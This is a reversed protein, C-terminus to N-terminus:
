VKKGLIRIARKVWGDTSDACFVKGKKTRFIIADIPCVENSRQTTYSKIAKVSVPTKHYSYCCDFVQANGLLCLVVVVAVLISIKKALLYDMQSSPCFLHATCFRSYIDIQVTYPVSSSVAWPFKWPKGM